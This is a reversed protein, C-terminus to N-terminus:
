CESERMADDLQFVFVRGRGDDVVRLLMWGSLLYNNEAEEILFCRQMECRYCVLQKITRLLNM